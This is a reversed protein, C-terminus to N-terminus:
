FLEKGKICDNTGGERKKPEGSLKSAIIEFGSTLITSKSKVKAFKPQLKYKLAMQRQISHVTGYKLM